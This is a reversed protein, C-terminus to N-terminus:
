NESRFLVNEQSSGTKKLHAGLTDDNDYITLKNITQESLDIHKAKNIIIRGNRIDM